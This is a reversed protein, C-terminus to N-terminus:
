FFMKSWEILNGSKRFFFLLEPHDTRDINNLFLVNTNYETLACVSKLM